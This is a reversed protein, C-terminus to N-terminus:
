KMVQEFGPLEKLQPVFVLEVRRNKARNTANKNNTVPDFEAAGAASLMQPPVGGSILVELVAQSRALSLDWNSAFQENSISQSDTHGVVQFRRGKFTKLTQALETLAEVAEPKLEAQAPAFLVDSPLTVLMLGNRFKVEIDGADIMKHLRKLLQQFEKNRTEAAARLRRLDKVEKELGVREADLKKKEEKLKDRDGRLRDQEERLRKEVDKLSEVTTTLNQTHRQASSLQADRETLKADIETLEDGRDTLQTERQDLKTALWRTEENLEDRQKTMKALEEDLERHQRTMRDIASKHTSSMVCGGLAFLLALTTVLRM